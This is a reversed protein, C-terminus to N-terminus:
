KNLNLEFNKYLDSMNQSISCRIHVLKFKFKCYDSVVYFCDNENLFHWPSQPM